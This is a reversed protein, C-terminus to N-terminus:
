RILTLVRRVLNDSRANEQFFKSNEGSFFVITNLIGAIRGHDSYLRDPKPKVATCLNDVTLSAVSCNLVLCAPLMNVCSSRSLEM